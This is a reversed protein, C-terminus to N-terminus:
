EENEAKEELFNKVKGYIDSTIKGQYERIPVWSVYRNENKDGNIIDGDEYNLTYYYCLTKTNPHIRKGLLNIITCHIGTEEFVEKMITNEPTENNKIIGTPFQWELISNLDISVAKEVKERQVMLVHKKHVLIGISIKSYRINPQKRITEEFVKEEIYYYDELSVRELYNFDNGSDIERKLEFLFGNENLLSLYCNKINNIWYETEKCFFATYIYKENSTINPFSYSITIVNNDFNIGRVYLHKLWHIRSINPLETYKFKSPDIRRKDCDFCDALCLLISLIDIRVHTNQYIYKKYNQTDKSFDIGHSKVVLAIYRGLEPDGVYALEKKENKIDEYILFTSILHHNNRVFSEKNISTDYKLEYQQAFNQLVLDNTEQIGIDHLYIAAVLVFCEYENLQKEQKCNEVFKNLCNLMRESHAIGHDTFTYLFPNKHIRESNLKITELNNKLEPNTIQNVLSFSM